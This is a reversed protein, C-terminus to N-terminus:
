LPLVIAFTSGKEIESEVRIEGGHQDIIAKVISLGLGTGDIGNQAIREVRYFADFLEPIAEDPIGIGTDTVTIVINEGEPQHRVTVQGGPHTYKIANSLLNDFVHKMRKADMGLTVDTTSPACHLRIDREQALIAFDQVCENLFDNLSTSTLSLASSAEMQVMDLMDSVLASMKEVGGRIGTLAESTISNGMVEPQREILAVYSLIAFMPNKLDHTAAGVIHNKMQSIAEFRQQDQQRLMELHKRQQVITMHSATRALVEEIRFPKVIYDVGGAKFARLVADSDTLASIFIVPIDATLPEAKLKECVAYGDLVPMHIDLFILDPLLNVAIQLADESEITSHVHYHHSELIGGLLLINAEVDDVILIHGKSDM